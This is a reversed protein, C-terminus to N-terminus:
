RSVAIVEGLRYPKREVLDPFTLYLAAHLPDLHKVRPWLDSAAACRGDRFLIGMRLYKTANNTSAATKAAQASVGAGVSGTAGPGEGLEAM